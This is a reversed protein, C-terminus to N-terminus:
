TKFMHKDIRFSSIFSSWVRLLKQRILQWWLRISSYLVRIILSAWIAQKEGEGNRRQPQCTPLSGSRRAYVSVDCRFLPGSIHSKWANVLWSVPIRMKLEMTAALFSSLQQLPHLHLSDVPEAIHRFKMWTRGHTCRLLEAVASRLRSPLFCTFCTDTEPNWQPSHPKRFLWHTRMAAFQALCEQLTDFSQSNSQSISM